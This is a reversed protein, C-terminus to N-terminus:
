DDNSYKVTVKSKVDNYIDGKTKRKVDTTTDILLQKALLIIDDVKYSSIGLIPKSLSVVNFRNKKLHDFQSSTNTDMGYYDNMHHIITYCKDDDEANNSIENDYTSFMIDKNAFVFDLKEIYCLVEFTKLSISADNMLETTCTSIKSVKKDKLLAKSKLIKTILEIKVEKERVFYRKNLQHYDEMGYRMVYFIWFLQDKEGSIFLSNRNRTNADESSVKKPKTTQYKHIPVVNRTITAMLKPTLMYKTLNKLINDTRTHHTNM